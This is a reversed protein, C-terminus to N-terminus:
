QSLAPAPSPPTAYTCNKIVSSSPNSFGYGGPLSVTGFTRYATAKTGSCFYEARPSITGNTVSQSKSAITIWSSSNPPLWQLRSTVLASDSGSCSVTDEGILVAGPYLYPAKANGACSTAWAPEAFVNAGVIVLGVVVASALKLQHGLAARQCTGDITDLIV